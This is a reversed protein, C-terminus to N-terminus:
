TSKAGDSRKAQINKEKEERAAAHRVMHIVGGVIAGLGALVAFTFTIPPSIVEAAADTDGVVFLVVLGSLVSVSLAANQIRPLYKM